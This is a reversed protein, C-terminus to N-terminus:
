AVGQRGEGLRRLLRWTVQAIEESGAASAHCAVSRWVTAEIDIRRANRPLKALDRVVRNFVGQWTPAKTETLM